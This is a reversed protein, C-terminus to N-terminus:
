DGELKIKYLYRSQVVRAKYINDPLRTEWNRREQHQRDKCTLIHIKGDILMGTEVVQSFVDFGNDRSFTDHYM